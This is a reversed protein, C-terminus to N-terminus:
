LTEALDAIYREIPAYGCRGHELVEARLRFVEARLQAMEDQMSVVSAQLWLSRRVLEDTRESRRERFRVAAVRNRHRRVEVPPQKRKRAPPERATRPPPPPPPPQEWTTDPYQNPEEQPPSSPSSLAPHVLDLGQQQEKAPRRQLHALHESVTQHPVAMSSIIPASQPEVLCQDLCQDQQAAIARDLTEECQQQDPTYYMSSDPTTMFTSETQAPTTTMPTTATTTQTVWLEPLHLTNASIGVDRDFNWYDTAAYTEFNANLPDM